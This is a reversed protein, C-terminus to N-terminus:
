FSFTVSSELQWSKDTNEPTIILRRGYSLGVSTPPIFSLSDELEVSVNIDMQYTKLKLTHIILVDSVGERINYKKKSYIFCKIM